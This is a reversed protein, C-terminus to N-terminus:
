KSRSLSAEMNCRYEAEPRALSISAALRGSFGDPEFVISGVRADGAFIWATASNKGTFWGGSSRGGGQNEIPFVAGDFFAVSGSVGTAAITVNIIPAEDKSYNDRGLCGVLNRVDPFARGFWNGEVDMPINSGETLGTANAIFDTCGGLLFVIALAFPHFSTRAM